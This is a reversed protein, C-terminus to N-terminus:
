YNLPLQFNVDMLFMVTVWGIHNTTDEFVASIIVNNRNLSMMSISYRKM